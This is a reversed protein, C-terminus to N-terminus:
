ARTNKPGTARWEMEIHSPETAIATLGLRLYLRIAAENGAAVSLRLARGTAGAEHMLAGMIASGTGQNRETPLLAQDVIRVFTGSRDVVIRGIPAGDREIIDFRAAPFNSRYGQTQARFQLDMLQDRAAEPLLALDPRSAGFLLLRFAKDTDREPRLRLVGRPTTVEIVDDAQVMGAM